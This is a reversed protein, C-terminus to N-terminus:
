PMDQLHTVQPLLWQSTGTGNAGLEQWTNIAMPEARDRHAHTGYVWDCQM